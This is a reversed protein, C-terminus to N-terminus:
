RYRYKDNILLRVMIEQEASWVHIAVILAILSAFL